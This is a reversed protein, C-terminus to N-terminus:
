DWAETSHAKGPRQGENRRRSMSPLRSQVRGARDCLAFLRQGAAEEAMRLTEGIEGEGLRPLAKGIVAHAGQQHEVHDVLEQKGPVDLMNGAEASKAVGDFADEARKRRLREGGLNEPEIRGEDIESWDHAAPESVANALAARDHEAAQRHGAAM